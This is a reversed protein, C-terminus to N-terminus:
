EIDVIPASQYAVVTLGANRSLFGNEADVATIAGTTVALLWLCSM